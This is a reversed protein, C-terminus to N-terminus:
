VQTTDEHLLMPENFTEKLEDLNFTKPVCDKALQILCDLLDLDLPLMQGLCDEDKSDKEVNLAAAVLHTRNGTRKVQLVSVSSARTIMGLNRAINLGLDNVNLNSILEEQLQSVHYLPRECTGCTANMQSDALLLDPRRSCIHECHLDNRGLKIVNWYFDSNILSWSLSYKRLM